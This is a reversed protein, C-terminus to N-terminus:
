FPRSGGSYQFIMNRLLSMNAGRSRLNRPCLEKGDMDVLGNFGDFASIERACESNVHWTLGNAYWENSFTTQQFQHRTLAGLHSGVRVLGKRGCFDCEPAIAAKTSHGVTLVM